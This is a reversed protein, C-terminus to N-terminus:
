PAKLIMEPSKYKVKGYDRWSYALDAHMNDAVKTSEGLHLAYAFSASNKIKNNNFPVNIGNVAVTHKGKVMAVGLGAGAFLKVSSVDLLDMYGNAMLTSVNLKMTHKVNETMSRTFKVNSSHDFTGDFRISDTLYYGGGLGVLFTNKAKYKGLTTTIGDDNDKEKVKSKNLSSLGAHGKVYFLGEQAIVSSSAFASSAAFISAATTLLLIKKM